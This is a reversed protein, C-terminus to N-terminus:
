PWPCSMNTFRTITGQQIMPSSFYFAKSIDITIIERINPIRTFIDFESIFNFIILDRLIAFIAIFLM